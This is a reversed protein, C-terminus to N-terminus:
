GARRGHLPHDRSLRPDEACPALPRHPPRPPADARREPRQLPWGPDRLGYRICVAAAGPPRLKEKKKPKERKLYGTQRLEARVDALDQESEARQLVDLVSNLYALQKEGEAILGTLHQEATKAKQYQKYLAAANQQPTKLPDLRIEVTPYDPTMFIRRAASPDGKKMRYLNATILDARRRLVERDESRRLEERQLALKKATRDRLTKMSKQLSQSRRRMSEAKDRRLYFEDLLDSFSDRTECRLADGYQEIPLSSFDKPKEGDLAPDGARSERREGARCLSGTELLFAGSSM